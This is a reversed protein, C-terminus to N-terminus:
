NVENLPIPPPPVNHVPRISHLYAHIAKLEDDSFKAYGQWPMPPLLMRATEIGKFRGHRMARKFNDFPWSGAGTSDSTLNGAFSAGWPGLAATGDENMQIIGKKALEVEHLSLPRESPYGSLLLEPIIEPGKAGVRKPSHCDNCGGIAVLKEGKLILNTTDMSVSPDKVQNSEMGCSNLLVFLVIVSGLVNRM